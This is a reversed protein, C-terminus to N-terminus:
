SVNKGLSEEMSKGEKLQSTLRQLKSLREQCRVQVVVRRAAQVFRQLSSFRRKWADNNYPDFTPIHTSHERARRRTRRRVCGTGRRHYEESPVVVHRHRQLSSLLSNLPQINNCFDVTMIKKEIM